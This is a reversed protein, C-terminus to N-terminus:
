SRHKGSQVPPYSSHTEAEMRELARHWYLDAPENPKGDAEWMLYARVRVREDPDQGASTNNVDSMSKELAPLDPEADDRRDEDDTGVRKAHVPTHTTVPHIALATARCSPHGTLTATARYAGPFHRAM